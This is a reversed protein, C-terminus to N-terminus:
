GILDFWLDIEAIAYFYNGVESRLGPPKLDAGDGGAFVSASQCSVDSDRYSRLLAAATEAYTLATSLGTGRPVFIYVDLRAPNRYRNQHAGGGFSVLEAPDTLFECYAFAAPTDPLEVNGASDAAENQWRLPISMGAQIVGRLVAYATAATTM